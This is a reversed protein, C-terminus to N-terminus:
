FLDAWLPAICSGISAGKNQIYVFYNVKVYTCELYFQVMSFFDRLSLGAQNQFDNDGM